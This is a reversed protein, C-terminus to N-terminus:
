GPALAPAGVLNMSGAVLASAGALDVAHSVAEGIVLARVTPGLAVCTPPAGAVALAIERTAGISGPLLDHADGAVGGVDSVIVAPEHAVVTRPVPVTLDEAAAVSVFGVGDPIATRGLTATLASTEALQAVAPSTPDLEVGLAAGLGSIAGGAGGARDISAFATALDAGGHPSGLTVLTHVEDPLAGGRAARGLALRAVVGGQSHAIVDVPVGPQARAIDALLQELRGAAVGLDGQSDRSAYSSVEIPDFAPGVAGPVRGGRYSFRLVDASAYGLAETDVRDIAAADSTSGLGAVLVAVRRGTSPPPPTSAPTCEQQSRRWRQLQRAMRAVRTAPQLEYGYHLLLAARDGGAAIVAAAVDAPLDLQDLVLDLLARREALPDVGEDAGPVLRARPRMSGAFLLEPDLYTGDPDRVGLHLRSGSRGITSGSSVRQGRRVRVEALFSYSTRLGDPHLVTVHLTGGVQGAFVVEGDATARVDGGPVTLYDVGRNGSAYRTAPPRFRDVVPADVPPHHRLPVGDARVSPVVASLVLVLTSLAVGVARWVPYAM